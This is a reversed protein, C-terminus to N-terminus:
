QAFTVFLDAFFLTFRNCRNRGLYVTIIRSLSNTYKKETSLIENALHGRQIRAQGKKKEVPDENEHEKKSEEEKHDKEQEEDLDYEAAADEVYFESTILSGVISEEDDSSSYMEGTYNSGDSSTDTVRLRSLSKSRGEGSDAGNANNTQAVAGVDTKTNAGYEAELGITNFNPSDKENSPASSAVSASRAKGLFDGLNRSRSTVTGWGRAEGM